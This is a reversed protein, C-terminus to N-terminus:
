AQGVAPKKGFIADWGARYAPTAVQAPGSAGPPRSPVVGGAGMVRTAKGESDCYWLSGADGVHQGEKVREMVALHEHDKHEVAVAMKQDDESRAIVRGASM